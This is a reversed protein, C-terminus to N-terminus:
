GGPERDAVIAVPVDVRADEGDLHLVVEEFGRPEMFVHEVPDFSMNHHALWAGLETVYAEFARVGIV